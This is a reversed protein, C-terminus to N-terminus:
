RAAAPAGSAIPLGALAWANMGGALDLVDRRGAALLLSAAM